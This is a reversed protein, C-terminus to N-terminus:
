LILYVENLFSISSSFIMTKYHAKVWLKAESSKFILDGWHSRSENDYHWCLCWRKLHSLTLLDSIGPIQLVLHGM